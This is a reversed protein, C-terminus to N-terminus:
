LGADIVPKMFDGAQKAFVEGGQGSRPICTLRKMTLDNKDEGGWTVNAPIIALKRKVPGNM